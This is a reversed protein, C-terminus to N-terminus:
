SGPQAAPPLHEILAGLYLRLDASQNKIDYGSWLEDGDGVQYNPFRGRPVGIEELLVDKQLWPGSDRRFEIFVQSRDRIIRIDIPARSYTAMFNDFAKPQDSFSLLSFGFEKELYSFYQNLDARFDQMPKYREINLNPPPLVGKAVVAVLLGLALLAIGDAVSSGLLYFNKPNLELTSAKAWSAYYEFWEGRWYRLLYSNPSPPGFRQALEPPYQSPSTIFQFNKASHVSETQTVAWASFESETPLRSHSKFFSDVFASAQGFARGIEHANSVTREVGGSWSLVEAIALCVLLVAVVGLVGSALKRLVIM